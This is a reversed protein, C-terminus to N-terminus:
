RGGRNMCRDRITRSCLPYNGGGAMGGASMGSGGHSMAGGQGAMGGSDMGGGSMGGQGSAGGGMQADAAPPTAGPQSMQDGASGPMGGQGSSAAGGETGPAMTDSQMSSGAPTQGGADQAYAVGSSGVLLSVAILLTKM